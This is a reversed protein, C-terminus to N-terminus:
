PLEHVRSTLKYTQELEPQENLNNCPFHIERCQMECRGLGMGITALSSGGWYTNSEFAKRRINKAKENMEFDFDAGAREM